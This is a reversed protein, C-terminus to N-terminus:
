QEPEQYRFPPVRMQELAEIRRSHSDLRRHVDTFDREAQRETYIGTTVSRLHQIEVQVAGLQQMVILLISITSPIGVVVLGATVTLIFKSFKDVTNTM